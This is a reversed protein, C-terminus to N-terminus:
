VQKIRGFGIGAIIAKQLPHYRQHLNALDKPAPYVVQTVAIPTGNVNRPWLAQCMPAERHGSVLVADVRGGM